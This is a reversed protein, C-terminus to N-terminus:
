DQGSKQRRNTPITVRILTGAGNGSQITLTGDLLLTREKIGILGFSDGPQIGSDFGIGNDHISLEVISEGFVLNVEVMDAKAHKEANSLAEQCIRMLTGEIDPHLNRKIGSIDLNVQMGTDRMFSEIKKELAKILSLQELIRPHLAWVSWRAENLSERALIRARNLHEQAQDIDKKSLNQEAAELQLVIGTFGQALTDHIERALRNREELVALERTEKYLRANAIAVAIQDALTQTTFLDIEDFKNQEVSQIEMVGLIDRGMRIPVAIASRVEACDPFYYNEKSFDNLVLPKDMKLALSALSNNKEIQLDPSTEGNCQRNSAKLSFNGSDSELIYIEVNYYHFNERLSNVVYPLLEDISLISSIRRGVENIIRLQESRRRESETREIVKRELNSYSDNLTIAMENFQEALEELEDGTKIHVRHKFDGEAMVKSGTTLALIPKTINKALLFALGFAAVIVGAIVVIYMIQMQRRQNDIYGETLSSVRAIEDQIEKSPKLLENMDIAAAVMYRAHEDYATDDIPALYSTGDLSVACLFRTTTSGDDGRWKYYGQFVNNQLDILQWSFQEKDLDNITSNIIEPNEHFLISASNIVSLSKEHYMYTSGTQGFPQVAIPALNVDQSMGGAKLEPHNELYVKIQEATDLARNIVMKKAVAEMASASTAATIRSLYVSSEKAISEVENVSTNVIYGTLFLSAFIIVSFYLLIKTTIRFRPMFRRWEM